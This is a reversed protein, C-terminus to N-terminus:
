CQGSNSGQNGSKSKRICKVLQFGDADVITGRLLVECLVVLLWLALTLFLWKFHFIGLWRLSVVSNRKDMVMTPIVGEASDATNRVIEAEVVIPEFNKKRTEDEEKSLSKKVWM